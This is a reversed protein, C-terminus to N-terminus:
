PMFATIELYSIQRLMGNFIYTLFSRLCLVHKKGHFVKVSTVAQDSGPRQRIEKQDSSALLGHRM